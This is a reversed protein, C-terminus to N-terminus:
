ISQQKKALSRSEPNSASGSPGNVAFDSLNKAAGFGGPFFLADFDAVNVEPLDLVPGRAIRAAERRVNRVEGDVPQGLHHDVVHMQDKDPAAIKYDAGAKSLALLTAVAEHIEAGDLFGCGSLVVCVNKSM